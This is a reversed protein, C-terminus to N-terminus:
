VGKLINELEDDKYRRNKYPCNLQKERKHIEALMLKRSEGNSILKQKHEKFKSLREMDNKIERRKERVRKLEKTYRYCWLVNIKNNEIYHLLDLERENCESLLQSLGSEYIELEDLKDVIDNIEKIVDM